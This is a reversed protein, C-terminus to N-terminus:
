DISPAVRMIAGKVLHNSKCRLSKQAYLEGASALGDGQPEMGLGDFLPREAGM